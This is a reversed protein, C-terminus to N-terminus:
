GPTHPVANHTLFGAHSIGLLTVMSENLLPFSHIATVTDFTSALAAGYTLVAVLTFFLLQVKGLDLQAANGIEDGQILDAFRADWPWKWVIIKGQTDIVEAPQGQRQLEETTRTETSALSAKVEPPLDATRLSRILPSAALSTTSIGMLWWLQDPIGINLSEARNGCSINWLAAVVFGSLVVLTWMIMQLRSLSLKNREDILAGLWLGIVGHGAIALMSTMLVLTAIFAMRPPLSWGLVGIAVVLFVQGITHWITWEPKPPVKGKNANQWGAATPAPLAPNAAAAAGGGAALAPNAPAGGAAPPPLPPNAAAGGVAPPPLAPNAAAGGGAAPSALAPNAAAVAVAAGGGGPPTPLAPNAADVAASPLLAPDAAPTNLQQDGRVNPTPNSGMSHGM